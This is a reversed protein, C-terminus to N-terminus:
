FSALTSVSSSSQACVTERKATPTVISYLFDRYKAAQAQWTWDAIVRSRAAKGLQPALETSLAKELAIKVSSPDSTNAYVATPGLIWKPVAGEHAVVPLGSAAAELYVIGFPEDQSMHLFADAQPYLQPMQERPVTGLLLHRNPLLEAALARVAEREPGDGAVLLFANPVLAVSRIGDLVRKSAILASSMFVVKFNSPIRSDRSIGDQIRPQFVEPDVGNPVLTSPYRDRHRTFYEPNTCVLGDCKFTRYESSEARCMWDGNQTVFISKPGNRGGRQLFWNTFPFTCHIVAHYDRSSFSRSSILSMIFSLEEYCYESRLIPLRPFSEFYERNVCKVSKMQLGDPVDNGSGFLTIQLDSYKALAKALELFATEAGRQVRGLGPLMLAVKLKPLRNAHPLANL